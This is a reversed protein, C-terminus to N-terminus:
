NGLHRTVGPQAAADTIEKRDTSTGFVHFAAWYFPHASDPQGRIAAAARRLSEPASNGSLLHKYFEAFLRSTTTSDVEWRSAIVQPTGARWFAQVLSEVNWPGDRESAATSCASLVALRCRKASKEIDQADLLAAEGALVLRASEGDFRAHGTFHFLEAGPLAFTVARFTAAAGILPRSAPFLRSVFEAEREADALPVFFESGSYSPNGVILATASPLVDARTRRLAIEAWLGPSTIITIHDGLWRGDTHVLAEFAVGGPVADPEVLVVRKPDLYTAIPGILAQYLEQGVQRLVALDSDPRSCLRSFRTCLVQCDSAPAPSWAFRVGRNDFLWIAVRNDIVAWSIVSATSYFGLQSQLSGAVTEPRPVPDLQNLVPASRFWEWFGLATRENEHDLAIRALRRFVSDAERKWRLRSSDNGLRRLAAWSIEAATLFEQRAQKWDQKQDSLLGHTRHLALRTLISDGDEDSRLAGLTEAAKEAKGTALYASALVIQNEVRYERASPMTAFPTLLSAALQTQQLAETNEGLRLAFAALRSRAMAETLRNPDLASTDVAEQAFAHASRWRQERESSLFLDSYFQYARVPPHTGKWFLELGRWNALAATATDGLMRHLSAQLGLGRLFLTDYRSSAIEELGGQMQKLATEFAGKHFTCVSQEMRLQGQIWRYRSTRIRKSLGAAENLCDRVRFSRSLAYVEEVWARAVGASNSHTAFLQRAIRAHRLGEDRRGDQNAKIANALARLGTAPEPHSVFEQLWPDQHREALNHALLIVAARAKSARGSDPDSLRPVWETVASDLFLEAPANLHNSLYIEESAHFWERKDRWAALTERVRSLRDRAEGAWGSSADVALYAECDAAARHFLLLKEFAIARNFLGIPDGAKRSLAESFYEVALQLDRPRRQALGRALYAIGLDSDAGRDDAEHASRAADLASDWQSRLIHARSLLILLAPSASGNSIRRLLLSEAEGLEPSGLLGRSDRHAPLIKAYPVGPLRIELIRHKTFSSALLREPTQESRRKCSTNIVVLALVTVVFRLVHQFNGKM